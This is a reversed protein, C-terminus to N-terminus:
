ETVNDYAGTTVNLRQKTTTSNDGLRYTYEGYGDGAHNTTNYIIPNLNLTIETADSTGIEIDDDVSPICRTFEIDCASGDDCLGQAVVSLYDGGACLDTNDGLIQGANADAGEYTSATWKQIAKGLIKYNDAIFTVSASLADFTNPIPTETTGMSSSRSKKRPAINFTFQTDQGLDDAELTFVSWGDTTKKRFVIRHLQSINIM